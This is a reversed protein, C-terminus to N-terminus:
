EGNIYGLIEDLAMIIAFFLIVVFPLLLIKM